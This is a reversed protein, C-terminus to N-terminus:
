DDAGWTIIQVQTKQAALAEVANQLDNIALEVLTPAVDVDIAEVEKFLDFDNITYIKSYVIDSANIFENRISHETLALWLEETIEVYPATISEIDHIADIYYGTIVNGDLEAFYRSNGDMIIEVNEM